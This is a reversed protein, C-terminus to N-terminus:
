KWGIRDYMPLFNKSRKKTVIGLLTEKGDVEKIYIRATDQTIASRGKPQTLRKATEELQKMDITNLEVRGLTGIISFVPLGNKLLPKTEFIKGFWNIKVEEQISDIILHTKVLREEM